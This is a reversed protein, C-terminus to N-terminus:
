EARRTPHGASREAPNSSAEQPSLDPRLVVIDVRRNKQKGEISSNNRLPKFEGYGEASLSEPRFQGSAALYRVITTARATSLEWNSPYKSTAIPSSDTHGEVRISPTQGGLVQHLQWAIANLTRTASPTLTASGPAFLISDRLSIVLGRSQNQVEVGKILLNHQIKQQLQRAVGNNKPSTNNKPSQEAQVQRTQPGVAQPGAMSVSIVPVPIKLTTTEPQKGTTFLVLFLGLLLTLLDAYPVMWRNNGTHGNQDSSQEMRELKQMMQRVGSEETQRTEGLPNFASSKGLSPPAAQGPRAQHRAQSQLAQRATLPSM